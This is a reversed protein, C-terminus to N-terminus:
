SKQHLWLPEGASSASFSFASGSFAILRWATYKSAIRPRRMALMQPEQPFFAM